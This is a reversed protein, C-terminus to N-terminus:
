ASLAQEVLKKARAPVREPWDYAIRGDAYQVPYDIRDSDAYVVYLHGRKACTVVKCLMTAVYPGSGGFPPSGNRCHTAEGTLANM